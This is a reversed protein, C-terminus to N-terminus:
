KHRFKRRSFVHPDHSDIRQDTLIRHGSICINVVSKELSYIHLCLRLNKTFCVFHENHLVFFFQFFCFEIKKMKSLEDESFPVYNPIMTFEDPSMEGIWRGVERYEFTSRFFINEDM